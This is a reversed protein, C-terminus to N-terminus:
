IVGSSRIAKPISGPNKLTDTPSSSGSSRIESRFLARSLQDAPLKKLVSREATVGYHFVLREGLIGTLLFFALALLSLGAPLSKGSSKKGTGETRGKQAFFFRVLLIGLTMLAVNGHTEGPPFVGGAGMEREKTALAIWGTCVTVILLIILGELLKGPSDQNTERAKGKEGGLIRFIDWVCWGVGFTLTMHVIIPHLHALPM